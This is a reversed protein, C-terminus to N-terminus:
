AVGARRAPGDPPGQNHLSRALEIAEEESKVEGTAVAEDIALLLRGVEPGPKMGLARILRDGRLFHRKGREGAGGTAQSQLGARELVYRIYALHGRWRSFTLRPGATAAADALSLVLCAPAAEGLDRFFRFVARETPAGSQSLQAPRLHEEILLAVFRTERNGLRLRRCVERAVKAGIESHGLFRIRGEEDAARTEPKAVDHLLTALKTLALRTQGGVPAEFYDHTGFESMAASYAQRMQRPTRGAPLEPGTLWDMVALAEVCHDFVDYHHFREPQEVGKARTLEPLLAELLTLDDLLRVGRAARGSSMIRMLEDRRREAAPETARPALARVAAATAAEVDFDLEVALRVARLLRLPDDSLAREAIMRVTRRKLDGAGDFPDILAGLGRGSLPAALANVTFDRGELDAEITAGRLTAVDITSLPAGAPLAVRFTGREEDLPFAHGGVAKKIAGACALAEGEVALDLDYPRRRLLIDRVFGGVAWTRGHTNAEVADILSPLAPDLRELARNL